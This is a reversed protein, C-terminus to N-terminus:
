QKLKCKGVFLIKLYIKFSLLFTVGLDEAVFHPYQTDGLVKYPNELGLSLLLPSNPSKQPAHLGIWFFFPSWLVKNVPFQSDFIETITM